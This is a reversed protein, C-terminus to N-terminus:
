RLKAAAERANGIFEAMKESDKVGTSKEVGSAVDVAYPRVIRIAEAVNEPTLGGALILPVPPRFEALLSWPATTGTGGHLGPVHADVLVASPLRGFGRSAEIYAEIYSLQRSDRVPFAAILRHAPLESAKRPAGYWQIVRIEKVASLIESDTTLPENVFLAVPDVFPPLVGVVSHAMEVTICRPSGSYFNLGIADAGLEAAAQADRENTIGCIKIRL